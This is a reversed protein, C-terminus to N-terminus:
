EDQRNQAQIHEILKDKMNIWRQIKQEIEPIIESVLEVKTLHINSSDPIEGNVPKADKTFVRTYRVRGSNEIEFVKYFVGKVRVIDGIEIESIDDVM